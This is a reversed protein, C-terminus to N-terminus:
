QKEPSLADEIATKLATGLDSKNAEFAAALAKLAVSQDETETIVAAINYATAKGLSTAGAVGFGGYSRGVQLRGLNLVVTGVKATDATPVPQAPGAFGLTVVVEKRGKGRSRAATESYTLAIPRVTLQLAETKKEADQVRDVKLEAVLEFAPFSGAGSLPTGSNDFLGRVITLEAQQCKDLGEGIGTATWSATRAKQANALAESVIGFAADVAIGVLPAIFASGGGQPDPAPLLPAQVKCVVAIQAAERTGPLNARDAAGAYRLAGSSCGALLGASALMLVTRHM